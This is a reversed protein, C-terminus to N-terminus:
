SANRGRDPRHTTRAAATAPSAAVANKRARGALVMRSSASAAVRIISTSGSSTHDTPQHSDTPAVAPMATSAVGRAARRGPGRESASAAATVIAAWTPTAGTATLANRPSGTTETGALRSATGTAPGSIIHPNGAPTTAPSTGANAGTNCKGVRSPTRQIASTARTPAWAGSPSIRAIWRTGSPAAAS